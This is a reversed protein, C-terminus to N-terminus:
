PPGRREISSAVALLVIGAMVIAGVVIWIQPVGLLNAAMAVGAILVIFGLIYLAISPM